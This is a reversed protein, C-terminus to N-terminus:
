LSPRTANAGSDNTKWRERSTSPVRTARGTMTRMKGSTMTTKSYRLGASSTMSTSSTLSPSRISKPFARGSWSEAVLSTSVILTQDHHGFPFVIRSKSGSLFDRWFQIEGLLDYNFLRAKKRTVRRGVEDSPVPTEGDETAHLEPRVNLCWRREDAIFFRLSVARHFWYGRGEGTMLKKPQWVVSRTAQRRNLPKYTVEREKGPEEAPFFYRHHHKDLRLGRRGTMKNLSRNLLAMYWALRDSDAWWDKARFRETKKPDVFDRFPGEPNRLNQFAWLKGSRLIFPTMVRGRGSPKVKGESEAECPAGFVFLPMQEVALMSSFLRDSVLSPVPAPTNARGQLTAEVWREHDEKMALLREVTYTTKQSDVLQHHQNCLLILNEYKNREETMLSSNGRPGKPSEAVIHAIEGLVVLPDDPTGEVTLLRRCDPFACINGSRQLLKRQEPVPVAVPARGGGGSQLFRTHCGSPIRVLKRRENQSGVENVFFLASTPHGRPVWLTDDTPPQDVTAASSFRQRKDRFKEWDLDGQCFGSV